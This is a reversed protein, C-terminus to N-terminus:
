KSITVQLMEANKERSYLPPLNAKLPPLLLSLPPQASWERGTHAARVRERERGREREGGEGWSFEIIHM